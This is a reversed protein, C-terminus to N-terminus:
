DTGRGKIRAILTRRGSWDAIARIGFYVATVTAALLLGVLTAFTRDDLTAGGALLALGFAVALGLALSFFSAHITHGASALADIESSSLQYLDLRRPQVFVTISESTIDTSPLREESTM